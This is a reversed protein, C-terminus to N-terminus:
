PFFSSTTRFRSLLPRGKLLMTNATATYHIKKKKELLLRCVLNSQSQLESTHEESRSGLVDRSAAPVREFARVAEYGVYGVAGGAFRPLGPVRERRYRALTRRLAVVADEGDGVILRERPLVGIFSYRALHEGGEVSEFLFAGDLHALKAFTSVPTELDAFRERMVPVLQIVREAVAVT